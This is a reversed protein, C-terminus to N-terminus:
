IDTLDDRECRSKTSTPAELLASTPSETPSKHDNAINNNADGTHAPLVAEKVEAIHSVTLTEACTSHAAVSGVDSAEKLTNSPLSAM